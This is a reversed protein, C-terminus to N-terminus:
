QSQCVENTLEEWYCKLDHKNFIREYVRGDETLCFITDSDSCIQIIKGM